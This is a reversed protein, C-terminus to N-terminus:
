WPSQSNVLAITRGHESAMTRSWVEKAEAKYDKWVRKQSLGQVNPTHIFIYTGRTSSHAQTYKNEIGPSCALKKTSQWGNRM